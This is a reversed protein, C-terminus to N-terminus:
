NAWRVFRAWVRLPLRMFCAHLEPAVGVGVLGGIILSKILIILFM